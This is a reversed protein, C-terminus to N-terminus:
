PEEPNEEEIIAAIADVFLSLDRMSLAMLESIPQSGYRAAYAIM